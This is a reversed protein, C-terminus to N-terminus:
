NSMPCRRPDTVCVDILETAAPIRVGLMESAHENTKGLWMTRQSYTFSRSTIKNEKKSNQLPQRCSVWQCRVIIQVRLYCRPPSRVIIVPLSIYVSTEMSWGWRGGIRSEDSWYRGIDPRPDFLTGLRPSGTRPFRINASLRGIDTEVKTLLRGMDSRYADVYSLISIYNVIATSCSIISFAEAKPCHGHTNPRCGTWFPGRVCRFYM